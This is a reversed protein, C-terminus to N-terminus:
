PLGGSPTLKFRRKVADWDNERLKRRFAERKLKSESFQENPKIKRMFRKIVPSTSYYGNPFATQRAEKIENEKAERLNARRTELTSQADKQEQTMFFKQRIAKKGRYIINSPSTSRGGKFLQQREKLHELKAKAKELDTKLKQVLNNQIHIVGRLRNSLLICLQTSICIEKKKSEGTEKEISEAIRQEVSRINEYIAQGNPLSTVAHTFQQEDDDSM